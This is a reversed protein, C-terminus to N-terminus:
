CGLNVMECSPAVLNAVEKSRLTDPVGGGLKGGRGPGVGRKKRRGTRGKLAVGCAMYICMYTENRIRM